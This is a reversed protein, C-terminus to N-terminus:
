GRRGHSTTGLEGEGLFDFAVDIEHLQREIEERKHPALHGDKLRELLQQKRAVLRAATRLFPPRTRGEDFGGGHGPTNVIALQRSGYPIAPSAGACQLSRVRDDAFLVIATCCRVELSMETPGCLSM